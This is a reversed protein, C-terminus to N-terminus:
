AYDSNQLKIEIAIRDGFLGDFPANPPYQHHLSSHDKSQGCTRKTSPHALTPPPPSSGCVRRRQDIRVLSDHVHKVCINYQAEKLRKRIEAEFSGYVAGGDEYITAFGAKVMEVSINGRFPFWGVHVAAVARGYQDYRLLQITARRGDAYKTLWAKAEKAYPQCAGGFHAMEPADIGALRVNITEFKIESRKLSPRWRLLSSLPSSHYFRVNDSDNVNIIYGKLRKQDRFYDLPIEQATRFRRFARRLVLISTTTGIATLWLDARPVTHYLHVVNDRIPDRYPQTREWYKRAPHSIQSFTKGTLELLLDDLLGMTVTLLRGKTQQGMEYFQKLWLITQPPPKRYFRMAKGFYPQKKWWKRLISLNLSLLKM